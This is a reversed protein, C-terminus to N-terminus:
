ILKINDIFNSQDIKLINKLNKVNQNLMKAKILYLHTNEYSRYMYVGVFLVLCTIFLKKSYSVNQLSITELVLTLVVAFILSKRWLIDKDYNTGLWQIKDIMKKADDTKAPKGWFTTKGNEEGFEVNKVHKKLVKMKRDSGGFPHNRDVVDIKVLFYLIAVSFLLSAIKEAM